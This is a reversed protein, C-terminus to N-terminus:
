ICHQNMDTRDIIEQYKDFSTKWVKGAIVATAGPIKKVIMPMAELLVDVGKVDKIQGFFLVIPKDQPLNLKERSESKTPKHDVNSIFNGHHIVRIKRELHPFRRILETRSTENHVVIGDTAWYVLREFPRDIVRTFFPEIDNSTIVTKFGMLKAMVLNYTELLGMKFYYFHALRAGQGRADILSMLTGWLFRLGRKLVSGTGYIDKYTCKMRFPINDPINTEDCTYYSMNTDSLTIARCLNIDYAEHGVHAGVPEIFCASISKNRNSM